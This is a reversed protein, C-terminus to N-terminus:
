PAKFICTDIKNAKKLVDSFLLLKALLPFGKEADVISQKKLFVKSIKM